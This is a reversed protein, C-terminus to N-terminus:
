VEDSPIRPRTEKKKTKKGQLDEDELWIEKNNSVKSFANMKEEFRSKAYEIRQQFYDLKRKAKQMMKKQCFTIKQQKQEPTM